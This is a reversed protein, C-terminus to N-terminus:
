DEERSTIFHSRTSILRVENQTDVEVDITRATRINLGKQGLM